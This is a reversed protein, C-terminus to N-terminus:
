CCRVALSGVEKAQHSAGAASNAPQAVVYLRITLGLQMLLVLIAVARSIDIVQCRTSMGASHVDSLKRNEIGNVSISHGGNLLHM